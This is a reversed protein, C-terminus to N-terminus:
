QGVVGPHEHQALVDTRQATHEAHGVAELGLETRLPHEIRRQSLRGDGTDRQPQGQGSPMRHGLHLELAEGVRGEVLHDAVDGLVPEAGTAPLTRRQDDADREGAPHAGRLVVPLARFRVVRVGGPQLHHNRGRGDVRVM